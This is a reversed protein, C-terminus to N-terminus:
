KYNMEVLITAIAHVYIHLNYCYHDLLGNAVRHLLMWGLNLGNIKIYCRQKWNWKSDHVSFYLMFNLIACVSYYFTSIITIIVIIYINLLYPYISFFKNRIQPSHQAATLITFKANNSMEDTLKLILVRCAIEASSVCPYLYMCTYIFVYYLYIIFYYDYHFFFSIKNHMEFLQPVSQCLWVIAWWIPMQTRFINPASKAITRMTLKSSKDQGFFILCYKAIYVYIHTGCYSYTTLKSWLSHWRGTPTESEM